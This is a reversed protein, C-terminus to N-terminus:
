PQLFGSKPFWAEARTGGTMKTTKLPRILLVGQKEQPCLALKDNEGHKDFMGQKQCTVSVSNKYGRNSPLSFVSLYSVCFM